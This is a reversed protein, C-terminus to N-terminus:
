DGNGGSFDTHLELIVFIDKRFLILPHATLVELARWRLCGREFASTAITHKGAGVARIMGAWPMVGPKPDAGVTCVMGAEPM